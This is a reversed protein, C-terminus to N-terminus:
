KEGGELVPSFTRILKNYGMYKEFTGDVSDVGREMFYKIRKVSNVRGVHVWKKNKKAEAIIKDVIPSMRWDDSGGIFLVDYDPMPLNEQGNQAAFAAPYGLGRIVSEWKHWLEITKEASFKIDPVVVFLCNRRYKSFKQMAGIFLKPKFRGTFAGNDLAWKAGARIVRVGSEGNNSMVGFNKQFAIRVDSGCTLYIM